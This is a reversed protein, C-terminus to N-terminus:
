LGLVQISLGCLFLTAGALAHSYREMSKLPLRELGLQSLLVMGLMTSLTVIGFVVTVLLMGGHSQQAAPYMLLPILPECPGLVFIIFLIWPTMKEGGEKLHPHAHQHFHAHLHHHSGDDHVHPHSHERQRYAQRIGWVLYAFGFGTILWGAITGRFSELGTLQSVAIGFTIGALGLVVSSLIHGLGCLSTILITKGLRWKRAKALVIFPLYHDPGLLTHFFGISAATVALISVEQSM